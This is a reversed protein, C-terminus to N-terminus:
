EKEKIARIKQCEECLEQGLPIVRHCLRSETLCGPGTPVRGMCYTNSETPKQPALTLHAM